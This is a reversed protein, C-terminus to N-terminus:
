REGVGAAVREPHRRIAGRAQPDVAPIVRSPLPSGDENGSGITVVVVGDPLHFGGKGDEEM